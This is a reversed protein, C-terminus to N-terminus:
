ARAEEKHHGHLLKRAEDLTTCVYDPEIGDAQPKGLRNLWMAAIDLSQAGQIDSTLSDGIHIVRM